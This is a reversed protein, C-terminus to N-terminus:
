SALVYFALPKNVTNAKNNGEEMCTTRQGPASQHGSMGDVGVLGVEVVGGTGALVPHGQNTM